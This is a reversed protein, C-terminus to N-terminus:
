GEDAKGNQESAVEQRLAIREHPSVNLLDAVRWVLNDEFENVHGDAYILEWMMEIIRLLGTDDLERNLLSTFQYLDVSEGEVKTAAAILEDTTEDSLDFRYKLVSHLKAREAAQIEGDIGVAHVLLAAAAVRYDGDEFARPTASGGSLESFFRRVTELMGTDRGEVM